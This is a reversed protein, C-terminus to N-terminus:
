AAVLDETTFVGPESVFNETNKLRYSPTPSSPVIQTVEYVEDSFSPINSKAFQSRNTRVRVKDGLKYKPKDAGTLLAKANSRLRLHMQREAIIGWNQPDLAQKPTLDALKDTKTNNHIQVANRIAEEKSLKSNAVLQKGVSTRITRISRESYISKSKNQPNSKRQKIGHEKLFSSVVSCMESGRDSYIEGIKLGAFENEFVSELNKVTINASLKRNFRICIFGSFVDVCVFLFRGTKAKMDASLYAYDITLIQGAYTAPFHILPLFKKYSHRKSSEYFQQYAPQEQIFTRVDHQTISPNLDRAARLLATENSYGGASNSYYLSSLQNRKLETLPAM